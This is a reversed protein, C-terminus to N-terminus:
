WDCAYTVCPANPVSGADDTDVLFDQWQKGDIALFYVLHIYVLAENNITRVASLCKQSRFM